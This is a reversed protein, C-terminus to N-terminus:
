FTPSSWSVPRGCIPRSQQDGFMPMTRSGRQPRLRSVGDSSGFTQPDKPSTLTMMQELRGTVVWVSWDDGDGVTASCQGVVGVRKLGHGLPQLARREVRPIHLCDDRELVKICVGELAVPAWTAGEIPVRHVRLDTRVVEGGRVQGRELLRDLLSACKSHHARVVGDITRRWEEQTVREHRTAKASLAVGMGCARWADWRACVLRQQGIRQTALPVEAAIHCGVGARHHVDELAVVVCGITLCQM